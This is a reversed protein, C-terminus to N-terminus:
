LKINNIYKNNFYYFVLGKAFGARVAVDNVSVGDFGREIFLEEAAKLIRERAAADNEIRYGNKEVAGIKKM